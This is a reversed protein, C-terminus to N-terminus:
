LVKVLGKMKPHPGCEYPFEGMSEFTKEFIEGPFIYDPEKPNTAKFWVNHYQRKENNTWIITDGTKVIIESPIFKSKVIQIHHIKAGTSTCANLFIISILISLKAYSTSCTVFNKILSGLKKYNALLTKKSAFKNKIPNLIIIKVKENNLLVKM